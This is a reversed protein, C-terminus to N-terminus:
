NSLNLKPYDKNIIEDVTMTKLKETYEIYNNIDEDTINFHSKLSKTSANAFRIDDINKIIRKIYIIKEEKSTNRM